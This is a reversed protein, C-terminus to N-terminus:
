WALRTGAIRLVDSAVESAEGAARVREAEDALGDALREVLEVTARSRDLLMHWVQRCCACVFLRLKRRGANTRAVQCKRSLHKLLPDVDTATLWERENM